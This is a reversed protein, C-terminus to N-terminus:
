AQYVGAVDVRDDLAFAMLPEAMAAIRVFQALLAERQADDLELELVSEMQRLYAKWDASSLPTNM